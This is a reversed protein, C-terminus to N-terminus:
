HIMMMMMMLPQLNVIWSRNASSRHVLAIRSKKRVVFTPLITPGRATGGFGPSILSASSPPAPSASHTCCVPPRSSPAGNTPV